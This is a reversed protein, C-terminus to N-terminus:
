KNDTSSLEAYAKEMLKTISKDKFEPQRELLLAAMIKMAYAYTGTDLSGIIQNLTSNKSPEPLLYHIYLILTNTSHNLTRKTLTEDIKFQSKPLYAKPKKGEKVNTQLRM